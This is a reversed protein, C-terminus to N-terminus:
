RPSASQTRRRGEPLRLPRYTLEGEQPLGAEQYLCHGSRKRLSATDPGGVRSVFKHPGDLSTVVRPGETWDLRVKALWAGSPGVELGGGDSAMM